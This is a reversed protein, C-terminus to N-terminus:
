NQSIKWTCLYSLCVLHFNREDTRKIKLNRLGQTEVWLYFASLNGVCTCTSEQLKSKEGRGRKARFWCDAKALLLAFTIGICNRPGHSFPMYAMPHRKAMADLSFREPDFKHPDPYIDEDLHFGIIPIHVETGAPITLGTGPSMHVNSILNM